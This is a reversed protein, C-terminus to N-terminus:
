AAIRENMTEVKAGWAGIVLVSVSAPSIEFRHLADAGLGFAHALLLKIVDAHSVLVVSAEGYRARIRDMCGVVRREVDAMSEGAPTRATARESNWRAWAPDTNLETFTKGSWAGFDIEDLGADIAVDAIGAMAAVADATQRTRERPSSVVAGFRERGMRAALRGAQALGEPGLRVGPMRGALFGGVNDHAAHRLLFFTTTTM